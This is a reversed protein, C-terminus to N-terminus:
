RRTRQLDPSWPERTNGNRAATSPLPGAYEPPGHARWRCPTNLYTKAQVFLREVISNSSNNSALVSSELVDYDREEPLGGAHLGGGLVQQRTSQVTTPRTKKRCEAM